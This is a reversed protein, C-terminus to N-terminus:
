GNYFESLSIGTIDTTSFTIGYKCSSSDANTAMEGCNRSEEDQDRFNSQDGMKKMCMRLMKKSLELNNWEIPKAFRFKLDLIRSDVVAVVPDDHRNYSELTVKALSLCNKAQELCNLRLKVNGYEMYGYMKEINYKVDDLLEPKPIVRSLLSDALGYQLLQCYISALHIGECLVEPFRRYDIDIREGLRKEILSGLISIERHHLGLKRYSALLPILLQLAEEDRGTDSLLEGLFSQCDLRDLLGSTGFEVFGTIAQRYCTEAEGYLDGEELVKGLSHVARLTELSSAGFIEKYGAVVRRYAEISEPLKGQAQYIDALEALTEFVEVSSKGKEQVFIDVLRLYETAAKAFKGRERHREANQKVANPSLGEPRAVNDEYEHEFITTPGLQIASPSPSAELPSLDLSQSRIQSEEERVPVASPLESSNERDHPPEAYKDYPSNISSRSSGEDNIELPRPSHHENPEALRTHFTNKPSKADEISEVVSPIFDANHMELSSHRASNYIFAESQLQEAALTDFNDEPSPTRYTINQPTATNEIEETPQNIRKKFADIRKPNIEIGRSYFMTCKGEEKIRSSQKAAIFGMDVATINKEFEWSKLQEKFKRESPTFNYKDRMIQVTKKLTRNEMMYLDHIEERHSEWQQQKRERSSKNTTDYAKVGSIEPREAEHNKLRADM